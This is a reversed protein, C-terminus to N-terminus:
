LAAMPNDTWPFVWAGRVALCRIESDSSAYTGNPVIQVSNELDYAASRDRDTFFDNSFIVESVAPETENPENAETNCETLFVVLILLIPLFHRKM